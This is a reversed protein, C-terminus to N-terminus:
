ISQRENELRTVLNTLSMPKAYLYGQCVKIGMSVLIQKQQETEVGEAIVEFNFIDSLSKVTKVVSQSAKETALSDVFVKDLKLTTAPLKTIVGLSSYGTGFDDIAVKVGNQLLTDIIPEIMSYDDMLETETVEIEISNNPAKTEKILDILRSTFKQNILDSYTVNFSLSCPLQKSLLLKVADFTKEMVLQDLPTILGSDQALPIFQDPKLQLNNDLNWRVLAEAGVTTNTHTDIKPQFVLHIGSNSKIADNLQHLLIQRESTKNILEKDFVDQKTGQVHMDLLGIEIANIIDSSSLETLSDLKVTLATMSVHHQFDGNDIFLEDISTVDSTKFSKSDFMLVFTDQSVLTVAYSQKFRDKITITMENLLRNINDKGLCLELSPFENIKLALLVVESRDKHNFSDLERALWNQNPLQTRVDYYALFSLKNMLALNAFRTSINDSFVNLLNIHQQKIQSNTRVIFLYSAKDYEKTSFFLINWSGDFQHQKTSKVKDVLGLVTNYDEKELTTLYDNLAKNNLSIYTITTALIQFTEPTNADNFNVCVIGDTEEIQIVRSIENLVTSTFSQLDNSRTISRSADVIIQLGRKAIYLQNLTDWNRINAIILSKLKESTLDVKNWYEDIDYNAMIDKQPALSAQGTLLIIRVRNDNIVDRITSVLKLGADDEEMVVDLLIVSIDNRNSLFTSAETASQAKHLVIPRGEVELGNLCLELTKQYDPDDEVSLVHWPELQNKVKTKDETFTFLGEAM